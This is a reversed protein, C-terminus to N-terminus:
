DGMSGFDSGLNYYSPINDGYIGALISLAGALLLMGLFFAGVIIPIQLNRRAPLRKRAIDIPLLLLLAEGGVMVALWLWYGWQAYITAAMKVSFLNKGSFAIVIVPVSLLLLALAYILVTFFAWRRM